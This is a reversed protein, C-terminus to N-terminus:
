KIKNGRKCFNGFIQIFNKNRPSAKLQQFEDPTVWKFDNHEHSLVVKTTIPRATYCITVLYRIATLSEEEKDKLRLYCGDSSLDQIDLGTEEKIEQAIGYKIDEGYDM